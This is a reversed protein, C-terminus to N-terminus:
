NADDLTEPYFLERREPLVKDMIFDRAEASMVSWRSIDSSNRMCGLCLGTSPDMRCINVCPTRIETM